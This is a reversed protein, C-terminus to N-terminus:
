LHAAASFNAKSPCINTNKSFIKFKLAFFKQSLLFMSYKVAGFIDVAIDFNANCLKDLCIKLINKTFVIPFDLKKM